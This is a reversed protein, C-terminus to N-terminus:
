NLKGTVIVDLDYQYKYMLEPELSYSTSRLAIYNLHDLIFQRWPGSDDGMDTSLRNQLITSLSM